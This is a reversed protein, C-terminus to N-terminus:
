PRICVDRNIACLVTSVWKVSNLHVHVATSGVGGANM